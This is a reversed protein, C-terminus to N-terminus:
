TMKPALTPVTIVDHIMHRDPISPPVSTVPIMPMNLGVIHTGTTAIIAVNKRRKVFFSFIFSVAVTTIPNATRITPMSYMVDATDPSLSLSANVLMSVMNLFGIRPKSAPITTVRIIWDDAADIPIRSDNDVVPAIVNPIAIGIM